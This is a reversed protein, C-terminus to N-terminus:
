GIQAVDQSLRARRGRAQPAFEEIQEAISWTRLPGLGHAAALARLEDAAFTLRPVEDLTRVLRVFIADARRVMEPRIFSALVRAPRAFRAMAAFLAEVRERTLYHLVGEVVFCTPRRPELEAAAALAADIGDAGLDIANRRVERVGPVGELLRRKRALLPASDVELWRVGDLQASFRSPRMDYGAGLVAVQRFGDRAVARLVLEDLARHRVCHATQLRDIALWLPPLAFRGLRIAQVRPDREALRRAFPDDLIREGSPRSSEAARFWANAGAILSRQV